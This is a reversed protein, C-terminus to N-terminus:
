SSFVIGSLCAAGVVFSFLVHEAATVEEEVRPLRSLVRRGLLYAIGVTLAAGIFISGMKSVIEFTM